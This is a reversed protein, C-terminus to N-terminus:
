KNLQVNEAKIMWCTVETLEYTEFNGNSVWQITINGDAIHVVEAYGYDEFWDPCEPRIIDGAIM